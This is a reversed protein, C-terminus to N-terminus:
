FINSFHVLGEEHIKRIEERCIEGMCNCDTDGGPGVRGRGGGGERAGRGRGMGGGVGGEEVV